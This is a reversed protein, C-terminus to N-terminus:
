LLCASPESLGSIHVEKTPDHHVLPFSTTLGPNARLKYPLADGELDNLTEQTLFGIMDVNNAVVVAHIPLFGTM